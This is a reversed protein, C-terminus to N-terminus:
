RARADKRAWNNCNKAFPKIAPSARSSSPMFRNNRITPSTLERLVGPGFM